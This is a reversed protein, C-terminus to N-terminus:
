NSKVRKFVVNEFDTIEENTSGEKILDGVPTQVNVNGKYIVNDNTQIAIDFSLNVAIDENKIGLKNLLSGNYVIETDDNSVYNGLNELALRFGTVGGNNSVQLSKLDDIKDGLYVIKDGIYNQKSQNYLNNLEGTPRYIKAEGLDKKQIVFNDYTISKITQSEGEKEPDIYIYFDNVQNLSINWLNRNDEVKNGDVTSIILIKSLKYPLHKEGEVEYKLMIMIALLVVIAFCSIFICRKFLNKKKM